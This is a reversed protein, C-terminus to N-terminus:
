KLEDKKQDLLKALKAAVDKFDIEEMLIIALYSVLTKDHRLDNVVDNAINDIRVANSSGIYGWRMFFDIKHRSYETLYNELKM